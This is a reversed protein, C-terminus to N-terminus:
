EPPTPTLLRFGEVELLCHTGSGPALDPSCRLPFSSKDEHSEIDGIIYVAEPDLRKSHLAKKNSANQELILAKDYRALYTGNTSSSSSM